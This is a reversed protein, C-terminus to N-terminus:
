EGHNKIVEVCLHKLSSNSCELVLVDGPSLPTGPLFVEVFHDDFVSITTVGIEEYSFLLVNFKGFNELGVISCIKSLSRFKGSEHNYVGETKKGNSFLFNQYRRFLGCKNKFSYPPEMEDLNTDAATLVKIFKEIVVGSWEM